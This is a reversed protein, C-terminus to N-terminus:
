GVESPVLLGAPGMDVSREVSTVHTMRDGHGSSRKVRCGVRLVRPFRQVVVTVSWFGAASAILQAGPRGGPVGFGRGATTSLAPRGPAGVRIRSASGHEVTTRQPGFMPRPGPSRNPLTQTISM